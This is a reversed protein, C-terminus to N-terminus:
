AKARLEAKARAVKIKMEVEHASLEKALRFLDFPTFEGARKAVPCERETNSTYYLHLNAVLTGSLSAAGSLRQRVM